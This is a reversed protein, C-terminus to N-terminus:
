VGIQSMTPGTRVSGGGRRFGMLSIVLGITFTVWLFWMFATSAQVERCRKENDASGYAIWSAPKNETHNCNVAKLKAALVIGAILTFLTSAADLALNVVPYSLRVVFLSVIGYIAALWSLVIVFMTFNIAATASGAASVNNAIVNGILGTLIILFLIQLGRLPKNLREM